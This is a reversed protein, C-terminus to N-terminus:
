KKDKKVPRLHTSCHGLVVDYGKWVLGTKLWDKTIAINKMKGSASDPVDAAKKGLKQVTVLCDAGDVTMVSVTVDGVITELIQEVTKAMSDVRRDDYDLRQRSAAAIM